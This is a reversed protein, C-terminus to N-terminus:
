TTHPHIPFRAPAEARHEVRCEHRDDVRSSSQAPPVSPAPHSPRSGPTRSSTTESMRSLTRSARDSFTVLSLVSFVSVQFHGRVYILKGLPYNATRNGYVALKPSPKQFQNVLCSASM